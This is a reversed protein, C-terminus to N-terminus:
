KFFISGANVKLTKCVFKNDRVEESRESIYNIYLEAERRLYNEDCKKITTAAYFGKNGHM